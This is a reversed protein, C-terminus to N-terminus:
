LSSNDSSLASKVSLPAGKLCYSGFNIRARELNSPTLVGLFSQFLRRRFFVESSCIDLVLVDFRSTYTGMTCMIGPFSPGLCSLDPLGVVTERVSVLWLRLCLPPRKSLYFGPISLSYTLRFIFLFLFLFCFFRTPTM